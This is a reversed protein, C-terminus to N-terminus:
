RGFLRQSVTAILVVEVFLGVFAEAASVISLPDSASFHDPFFGRGHFATLSVVVSEVPGGATGVLSYAISFFTIIVFYALFGRSPRYGYGALVSLVLSFLYPPLARRGMRRLSVRQMVRARFAFRDAETSLGQAQLQLTLQQNARAAASYAEAANMPGEGLDAQRARHEDGLRRLPTWDVVALNVENWRVEAVTLGRSGTSLVINKLSTENSFTARTLNTGYLRAGELNVGSLDAETFDVDDLIAGALNAGRLNARWLAAGTLYAGALQTGPLRGWLFSCRELRAGLLSAGAFNVGGVYADELRAELLDAGEFDSYPLAARRLDAFALKARRFDCNMLGADTLDSLELVAEEFVAEECEAGALSVESLDARRLVARQLNARELVCGRLDAGELV